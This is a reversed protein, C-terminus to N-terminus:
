GPSTATRSATPSAHGAARRLGHDQLPLADPRRAQLADGGRVGDRARPAVPRHHQDPHLRPARPHEGPDLHRRRGPVRPHVRRRLRGLARRGAGAVRRVRLHHRVVRARVGRPHHTGLVAGARPERVVAHARPHEPRGPHPRPQHDGLEARREAHQHVYQSTVYLVDPDHPSTMVPYTWWFRYLMDAAGWGYYTEPNPSIDRVQKTRHDYRYIFHHDGAYIIDPDDTRPAIYGDEGGGVTYWDELTIAGYDSRSPVSITTNDQQSAYLRYPFGNDVAVHYLQATPQNM